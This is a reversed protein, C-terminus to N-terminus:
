PVTRTHDRVLFFGENISAVGIIGNKFFPYNSWTGGDFPEDDPPYTDLYGVERPATPKTIDLIRLGARYNSQYLRDGKVFQNHDTAHTPGIYQLALVPDTLDSMDWVMTRTGEKSKGCPCVGAVGQAGPTTQFGGEDLEDDEFWYRQDETFWGQHAYSVDPYSVHSLVKVNKKDTVDQISIHTENAAICLQHHTYSTDPGHYTVCQGDHTYGGRTRGTGVDAFCGAFVPQLPHHLDIMHLGGSCRDGGSATGVAFAFGSATDVIINHISGLDYHGDEAFHRPASVGRLHTLDFIQVGHHDGSGDSVVLAYNKYTKIERWSSISAGRTRPLDGLYRPHVPDSVDIFAAADTRGVIAYDKGTLPDTWGWMGSLHIGRKGGIASIPLFAALSTNSCPFSGAKGDVCKVEKGIVEAYVDTVPPFSTSRLSWTGAISRGLFAVTGAGGGDGPMGVVAADGSVAFSSAFQASADVSDGVALKTMSSWDGDKDERLRYIRGMGDSGPAGVWLEDGVTAVAAGFRDAAMDFPTLTATTRWSGGHSREFVVVMGTQVAPALAGRGGGGANGAGGRAPAAAGPAAVPNAVPPPAAAFNAAPGGAIVRDGKVAVAAGLQSNEPATRPAVQETEQSWVGDQARHFVFVGGKGLRGPAGVAVRDGDIAVATGFRDSDAASLGALTGAAAWSGDASQRFVFVTGGGSAMPAGVLALDGAVAVASGFQIGVRSIGPDLTGAAVWKGDATRRFVAVTGAASDVPAQPGAAGRGGRGAAGARPPIQGVLLTSADAALAMGFADGALPSLASLQGTEKWGTPGRHYVHVVGAPAAAAERGGGRVGTAGASPEGVFAYDGAIAVSRGFVSLLDRVPDGIRSVPVALATSSSSLLLAAALLRARTM